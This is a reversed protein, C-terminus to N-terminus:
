DRGRAPVQHGSLALVGVRAGEARREFRSKEVLRIALPNIKLTQSTLDSEIPQQGAQEIGRLPNAVPPDQLTAIRELQSEMSRSRRLIQVQRDLAASRQSLVPRLGQTFPKAQRGRHRECVEEGEGDTVRHGFQILRGVAACAERDICAEVTAREHPKVDIEPDAVVYHFREVLDGPFVPESKGANGGDGNRSQRGLLVPRLLKVRVRARADPGISPDPIKNIENQDDLM